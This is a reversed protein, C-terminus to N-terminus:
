FGSADLVRRVEPVYRYSELRARVVHGRQATRDSAIDASLEFMRAAARAAEEPENADALWSLYLALERTHTSDYRALVDTLLPVARLPRHLETYCRAEMVQLEGPDVWYLYGAEDEGGHQALATEAEGLARMTPQTEDARAHAWAIRDWALARARAPAYPGAADLAARAFAIGEQVDVTNSVQYALSGILNSELTGDGAEHAASIGLRYTRAAQEHQGADSAVWGAIQAFEGITSLLRRGVDQAYTSTRYVRIAADLERFAPQILDGGALVDDALRLGHVRAGLDEVNGIGLRSGTRNDNPRLPEPERLLDRLVDGPPRGNQVPGDGYLEAESMNLVRCYLLRYPDRPQHKGSEYDRIRRIVSAREPLTARIHKDAAKELESAMDNQSWWRKRRENRLREAWAPRQKSAM